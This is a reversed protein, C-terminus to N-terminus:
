TFRSAVCFFTRTLVYLHTSIIRVQLEDPNHVHVPDYEEFERYIQRGAADFRTKCKSDPPPSPTSAPPTDPRLPPNPVVLVLRARMGSVKAFAALFLACETLSKGPQYTLIFALRRAELETIFLVDVFQLVASLGARALSSFTCGVLSLLVCRNDRACQDLFVCLTACSDNAGGDGPGSLREHGFALTTGTLLVYHARSLAKQMQPNCITCEFMIDRLARVQAEKLQHAEVLRVASNPHGSYLPEGHLKSDVTYDDCFPLLHIQRRYATAIAHAHAHSTSLDAFAARTSLTSSNPAIYVCPFHQDEVDCAIDIDAPFALPPNESGQLLWATARLTRMGSGFCGEIGGALDGEQKTTEISEEKAGFNLEKRM